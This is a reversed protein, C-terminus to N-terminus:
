GQPANRLIESISKAVFARVRRWVDRRAEVRLKKANIRHFRIMDPTVRHERERRTSM